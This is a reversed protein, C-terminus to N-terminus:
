IFIPYIYNYYLILIIYYLIIYYIGISLGITIRMTYYNTAEQATYAAGNAGEVIKKHYVNLQYQGPTGPTKIKSLSIIATDCENNNLTLIITNTETELNPTFMTDSYTYSSLFFSPDFNLYILENKNIHTNALRITFLGTSLVDTDYNSLTVSAQAM